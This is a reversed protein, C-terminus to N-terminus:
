FFEQYTTYISNDIIKGDNEATIKVKDEFYPPITHENKSIFREFIKFEYNEIDTTGLFNKESIGILFRRLKTYIGM